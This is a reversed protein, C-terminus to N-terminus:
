GILTIKSLLGTPGGGYPNVYPPQGVNYPDIAISYFDDFGPMPLVIWQGGAFTIPVLPAYDDQDTINFQRTLNIYYSNPVQYWTMNVNAFFNPIDGATWQFTSPSGPPPIPPSINWSSWFPTGLSGYGLTTPDLESGNWTVSWYPDDGSPGNWSNGEFNVCFQNLFNVFNNQLWAIIGPLQWAYLQNTAAGEASTWPGNNLGGISMSRGIIQPVYDALRAHCPSEKFANNQSGLFSSTFNNM